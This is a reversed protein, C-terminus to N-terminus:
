PQKLFGRVEAVTRAPDEEQPVHGLDDFVVLRSSAIDKAFRQGNEPPLLRDRGGWLILTPQKLSRIAAPDGTYGQEIRRALARRNGARLTMDVYLDVLEPTVKEPQGYVYRATNEVVGRPLTYAMLDRVVPMGALQFGLPANRPDVGYGSADVLILGAVRQPVAAATAWAIQGGLSNGGLVFRQIGLQDVVATVFKVYSAISYDNQVNPGTLAFGPLDFRVVRRDTRLERAWGEWTHLSASTGHLLVLPLSSLPAGPAGPDRPGEDRLHVQQGQVEIFKSPPQAWRATLESVPKDPAWTAVLGAGGFFVVAGLLLWASKYLLKM